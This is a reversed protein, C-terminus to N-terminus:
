YLVDFALKANTYKQYLSEYKFGKYIFETRTLKVAYSEREGVKYLWETNGKM